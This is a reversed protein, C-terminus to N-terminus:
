QPLMAACRQVLQEAEAASPAELVAIVFKDQLIAMAWTSKDLLVAGIHESEPLYTETFTAYADAAEETSPYRVCLLQIPGPEYRALVADTDKGLDLINESSLYYHYNLSAHQHFYRVSGRVLDEAPLYGVLPPRQGGQPLCKSVSSALEFVAEKTDPTEQEAQICVLYDAQWFCLLGTHYEYGNGIGSQESERAHSFVGYAEAPSGMDFIELTLSPKHEHEFHLVDVRRFDYSLYVEAAGDIYDYITQSDYIEASDARTWGLVSDPVKQEFSVDAREQKNGSCFVLLTLALSWILLMIADKVAPPKTNTRIGTTM